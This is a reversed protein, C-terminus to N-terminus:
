WRDNRKHGGGNSGGRNFGGGNGRPRSGGGQPKQQAVNVNLKRGEFETNNLGAIAADSNEMEVFCFGRPRGSMKDTIINVSSVEGYQAFLTKVADETASFALNGVFLKNPMVGGYFFLNIDLM